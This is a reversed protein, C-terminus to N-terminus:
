TLVWYMTVLRIRPNPREVAAPWRCCLNYAISHRSHTDRMLACNVQLAWRDAGCAGAALGFGTAYAPRSRETGGRYRTVHMTQRTLGPNGRASSAGAPRIGPPQRKDRAPIRLRHEPRARREIAPPKGDRTREGVPERAWQSVATMINIVLRGAASGTYLSEALRSLSLARKQCRELLEALDKVSRTLRRAQRYIVTDM